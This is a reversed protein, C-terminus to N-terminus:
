IKARLLLPFSHHMLATIACATRRVAVEDMRKGGMFHESLVYGRPFLNNYIKGKTNVNLRYRSRDEHEPPPLSTSQM